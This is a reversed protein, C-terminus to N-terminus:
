SPWETGTLSELIVMVQAQADALDDVATSWEGHHEGGNAELADWAIAETMALARVNNVADRLDAWTASM